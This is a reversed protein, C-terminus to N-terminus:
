KIVRQGSEGGDQANLATVHEIDIQGFLSDNPGSELPVEHSHGAHGGGEHDHDHHDHEDRCSM